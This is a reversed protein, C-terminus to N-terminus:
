LLTGSAGIRFWILGTWVRRWGIKLFWKLIVRRGAQRGYNIEKLNEKWFV